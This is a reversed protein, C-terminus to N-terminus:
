RLLKIKWRERKTKEIELVELFGKNELNLKDGVKINITSRKVQIGNLKLLGNKIRIGIKNRSLRFGASAVADLRTSAEVTNITKETRNIPTNLDDLNLVKIKVEVERLFHNKNEILEPNINGIIGQAGRDGLTWIDGINNTDLGIEEILNRFDVQSANDFLFNGKIDIGKGPFDKVIDIKEKDISKRFCAVRARESSEFGGYVFYSLDNLNNLDKILEECIYRSFFSTWYVQWNKFALNSIDIIQGMEFKYPSKELFEKLDLM